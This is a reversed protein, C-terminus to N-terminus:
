ASTHMQWIRVSGKLAKAGLTKACSKIGLKGLNTLMISPITGASGVVIPIVSRECGGMNPLPEETLCKYKAVKDDAHMKFIAPDREYPITVEMFFVKDGETATLDPKYRQLGLRYSHEEKVKFGKQRLNKTLVSTVSDHRSCMAKRNKQCENLVYLDTEASKRCRRCDKNAMPQGKSLNIRTPLTGSLIQLGRIMSGGRLTGDWVYSCTTMSKAMCVLSRGNHIGKLTEMRERARESSIEAPGSVFGLHAKRLGSETRTLEYKGIDQTAADPSGAMKLSASLQSKLIHDLLNPLGGGSPLHLWSDPTSEPLHLLNKFLIKVARNVKAVKLMPIDSVRLQYTLKPILWTKVIEARQHPRLPAGQVNNFMSQWRKEPLIIEGRPNFEVGLYKALSDFTLSPLPEGKWWHHHNTSVKHNHKGSVAEALLSQCKQANVKLGHDDFFRTARDLLVQM